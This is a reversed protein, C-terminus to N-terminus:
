LYTSRSRFSASPGAGRADRGSEDEDRWAVVTVRGRVDTPGSATVSPQEGLSEITPM